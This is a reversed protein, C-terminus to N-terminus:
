CYYPYMDVVIKSIDQLQKLKISFYGQSVGYLDCAEKRDIGRVLFAELAQIVKQSNISSIDVLLIFHEQAVSGQKLFGFASSYLYSQKNNLQSIGEM